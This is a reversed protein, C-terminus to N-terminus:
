VSPEHIASLPEWVSHEFWIFALGKPLLSRERPNQIPPPIVLATATIQKLVSKLGNAKDLVAQSFISILFPDLLRRSIRPVSSSLTRDKVESNRNKKTFFNFLLPDLLIGNPLRLSVPIKGLVM